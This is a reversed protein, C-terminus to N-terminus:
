RLKAENDALLEMRAFFEELYAIMDERDEMPLHEFERCLRIMEERHERFEAFTPELMRRDKGRWQFYRERVTKIPLTPYPVAYPANVLGSRDFDYPVPWPLGGKKPAMMRVNHRNDMNFDTNGIMYQFACFTNYHSASIEKIPGETEYDVADLRKLAEKKSEILIAWNSLPAAGGTDIYTIRLLRARFCADTLTGYLQYALFERLTLRGDSDELCHTVLKYARKGIKASKDPKVKIRIPPFDCQELRSVGRTTVEAGIVVREGSAEVWSLEAAIVGTDKAYISALDMQLTISDIAHETFYQFLPPKKEKPSEPRFVFFALLAAGALLVALLALKTKISPKM